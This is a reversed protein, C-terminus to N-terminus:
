APEEAWAGGAREFLGNIWRAQKASPAFGRALLARMNHLFEVDRETLIEAGHHLTFDVAEAWCTAADPRRELEVRVGPGAAELADALDHWDLGAKCLRRTIQAAAAAVEGAKDSSLLLILPRMGAVLPALRESIAVHANM